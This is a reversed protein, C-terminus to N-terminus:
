STREDLLYPLGGNGYTIRTVDALGARALQRTPHRPLFHLWGFCGDKQTM